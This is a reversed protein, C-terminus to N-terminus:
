VMALEREDVQEPEPALSEEDSLATHLKDLLQLTAQLMLVLDTVTMIGIPRGDEVVPLASIRHSLLMSIATRIEATADITFPDVTMIEAATKGSGARFDRDSLIGALRGHSDCVLLHHFQSEQMMEELEERKTTLPVCVPKKTQIQGVRLHSTLLDGVNKSLVNFIERRKIAFPAVTQKPAEATQAAQEVPVSRRRLTRLLVASAVVGGFLVVLLGIQRATNTNNTDATTAESDDSAIIVRADPTDQAFDNQQAHASLNGTLQTSPWTISTLILRAGFLVSCTIVTLLLAYETLATGRRSRAGCISKARM